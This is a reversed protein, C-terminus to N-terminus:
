ESTITADFDESFLFNDGDELKISGEPVGLNKLRGEQNLTEDSGNLGSANTFPTSLKRSSNTIWIGERTFPVDSIIWQVGDFYLFWKGDCTVYVPKNNYYGVSCYDGNMTKVPDNFGEINVCDWNATTQTFESFDTNEYVGYQPLCSENTLFKGDKNMGGRSCVWVEEVNDWWIYWSIDQSLKYIPKGNKFSTTMKYIGGEAGVTTIQENYTPIIRGGDSTLSSVVVDDIEVSSKLFFIGGCGTNFYKSSSQFGALSPIKSQLGDSKKVVVISGIENRLEYLSIQEVKSNALGSWILSNVGPITAM